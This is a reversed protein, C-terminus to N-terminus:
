EPGQSGCGFGLSPVNKQIKKLIYNDSDSKFTLSVTITAMVTPKLGDSSTEQFRCHHNYM